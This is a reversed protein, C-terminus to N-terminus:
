NRWVPVRCSARTGHSITVTVGGHLIFLSIYVIFPLGGRSATLKALSELFSTELIIKLNEKALIKLLIRVYALSSLFATADAINEGKPRPKSDSGLFGSM